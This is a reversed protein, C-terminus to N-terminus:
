QPAMDTLDNPINSDPPAPTSPSASPPYMWYRDNELLEEDFPCARLDKYALAAEMEAGDRVLIGDEDVGIVRAVFQHHGSCFLFVQDMRELWRGMRVEIFRRKNRERAEQREEAALRERQMRREAARKEKRARAEKALERTEQRKEKRRENRRVEREEDEERRAHLLAGAVAVLAGIALIM